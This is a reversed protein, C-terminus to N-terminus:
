KKEIKIRDIQSFLRHLSTACRFLDNIRRMEEIRMEDLPNDTKFSTIGDANFEIEGEVKKDGFDFEFDHTYVTM